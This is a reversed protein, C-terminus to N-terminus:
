AYRYDENGDRISRQIRAAIGATTISHAVGAAKLSEFTGLPTIVKKCARFQNTYIYNKSPKVVEEKGIEIFKRKMKLTIDFKAVNPNDKDVIKKVYPAILTEFQDQEM